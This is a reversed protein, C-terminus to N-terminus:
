HEDDGDSIADDTLGFHQVPHRPASAKKASTTAASRQSATARESMARPPERRAFHPASGHLKLGNEPKSTTGGDKRDGNSEDDSDALVM